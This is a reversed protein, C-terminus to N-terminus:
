RPDPRLTHLPRQPVTAESAVPLDLVLEGDEEALRAPVADAGLAEM